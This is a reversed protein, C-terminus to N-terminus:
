LVQALHAGRQGGQPIFGRAQSAPSLFQGAAQQGSVAQERRSTGTRRGFHLLEGRFQQPAVCTLALWEGDNGKPWPHCGASRGDTGDFDRLAVGFLGGDPYPRVDTGAIDEQYHGGAPVPM